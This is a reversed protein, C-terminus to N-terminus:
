IPPNSFAISYKLLAKSLALVSDKLDIVEDFGLKKFAEHIIYPHTNAEFQTYLVPSPVVVKYKYQSLEAGFSEDKIIGGSPCVSICMGCDVCLEESIVAKGDRIRIAQTPCNRMCVMKGTCKEPDVRHVHYYQM